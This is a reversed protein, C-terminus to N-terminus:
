NKRLPVADWGRAERMVRVPRAVCLIHQAERRNGGTLGRRNTGM